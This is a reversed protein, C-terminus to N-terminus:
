QWRQLGTRFGFMPSQPCIFRRYRWPFVSMRHCRRCIIVWGAMNPRSATMVTDHMPMLPIVASSDDPAVARRIGFLSLVHFFYDYCGQCYTQGNRGKSAAATATASMTAAATMVTGFRRAPGAGLALALVYAAVGLLIARVDGTM